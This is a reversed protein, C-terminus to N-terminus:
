LRRLILRRNSLAFVSLLTRRTRCLCQLLPTRRHEHFSGTQLFSTNRKGAKRTEVEPFWQSELPRRLPAFGPRHCCCRIPRYEPFQLPEDDGAYIIEQIYRRILTFPRLQAPDEHSLRTCRIDGYTM